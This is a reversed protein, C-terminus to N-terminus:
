KFFKKKILVLICKLGDLVTTKKGDRFNRANFNVPIEHIYIRKSTLIQIM